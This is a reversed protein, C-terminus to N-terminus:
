FYFYFLFLSYSIQGVFDYILPKFSTFVCKNGNAHLFCFFFYDWPKRHIQLCISTVYLPYTFKRYWITCNTNRADPTRRKKREWVTEMNPMLCSAHFFVYRLLLIRMLFIIAWEWKHTSSVRARYWWLNCFSFCYHHLADEALWFMPKLSNIVSAVFNICLKYIYLERLTKKRRRRKWSFNHTTKNQTRAKASQRKSYM